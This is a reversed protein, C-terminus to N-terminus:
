NSKPPRIFTDFAQYDGNFRIKVEDLIDNITLGNKVLLYKLADYDIMTEMSCVPCLGPHVEYDDQNKEFEDVVEEDTLNTLRNVEEAVKLPDKYTKDKEM